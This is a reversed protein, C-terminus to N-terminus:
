RRKRRSLGATALIAGAAVVTMWGRHTTMWLQISSAHAEDNFRGRAGPDGRVPEWLNGPRDPEASEQTQQGSVANRALFRDMLGPALKNLWITAVTPIGVYLQRRRHHAAWYIARAAVEPQYVPAMPRARKPLKNKCWDFQPTNLGPMDVVTVRVKSRQHRLETRLAETYGNTAHKAGCYATQLPVSRYALASSVQVIMGRDRAQMHRLAALTGNVNGLYTVETVRKFEAATIDSFPSFVTTMAVNIWIDIPGFEAEITAAARDVQEADAVDAPLAVAQGGLAVVESRAAELRDSSRALLGIRAGHKAFERATARGVGASAGTIVVTEPENNM